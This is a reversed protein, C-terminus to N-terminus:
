QPELRGEEIKEYIDTATISESAQWSATARGAKGTQVTLHAVGDEDLYNISMVVTVDNSNTWDFRAGEEIIPKEEM